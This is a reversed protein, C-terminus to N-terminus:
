DVPRFAHRVDYRAVKGGLDVGAEVSNRYHYGIWVRADVIQDEIQDVTDFHRSATLSTAGNEAGWITLDIHNTHLVNALVEALASTVCGHASPWEPHNPTALLPTWAPDGVTGVNGDLGPTGAAGENRIATYPRWFLYTYKQNFCAMGADAVTANGMAMLRAADALDLSHQTAVDRFARNYQNVVNANWFYATATQEPTRVASDIRGYTKTETFDRAWKHSSLGPPAAAKYRDAKPLVFPHMFGIWPTQAFPLGGTAVQWVGAKLPGTGYSGQLGDRGDNSRIAEIGLAAAKGVSVGDSQSQGDPIAALSDTLWADLQTTQAATLGAGLYYALTDHAAQAVAAEASAGAPAFLSYGYPQYRGEISVVANYVATQVYGLYLLGEPQFIARTAPPTVERAHQSQSVITWAHDNWTIAAQPSAASQPKKATNKAPASAALFVTLAAIALGIL